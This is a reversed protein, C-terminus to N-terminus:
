KERPSLLHAADAGIRAVSRGVQQAMAAHPPAPIRPPSERPMDRTGASRPVVGLLPLALIREVDAASKLSDDLSALALLVGLAVLLGLVAAVPVLVRTLPWSLTATPQRDLVTLIVQEERLKSQQGANHRQAYVDAIELAMREARRPDVDEVDLRIQNSDQVPEARTQALMREPPLDLHLNADVERMVNNQRVQEALPRLQRELALTNGYDFRGTAQIWVTSKWRPEVWPLRTYLYAAAAAIAAAVLLIWWRERLTRLADGLTLQM